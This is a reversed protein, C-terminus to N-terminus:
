NSNFTVDCVELCSVLFMRMSRDPLTVYFYPRTDHWERIYPDCTLSCPGVSKFASARHDAFATLADDMDRFNAETVNHVDCTWRYAMRRLALEVLAAAFEGIKMGSARVIEAASCQNDAELHGVYVAADTLAWGRGRKHLEDAVAHILQERPEEEKCAGAPEAARYWVTENLPAASPEPDRPRDEVSLFEDATALLNKLSLSSDRLVLQCCFRRLLQYDREVHANADVQDAAGGGVMGRKAHDYGAMIANAFWALMTGEDAASNIRCFEKAWVTADSIDNLPIAACPGAHGVGRSCVWGAPAVTCVDSGAAKPERNDSPAHDTTPSTCLSCCVTSDKWGHCACKHGRSVNRERHMEDRWSNDFGVDVSVPAGVPPPTAAMPFSTTGGHPNACGPTRGVSASRLADMVANAIHSQLRGADLQGIGDITVSVRPPASLEDYSLQGRMDDDAERM